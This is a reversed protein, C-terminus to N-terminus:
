ERVLVAETVPKRKEAELRLKNIITEYEAETPTYVSRPIDHLPRTPLTEPIDEQRVPITKRSRCRTKRLEDLNHKIRGCTYDLRKKVEGDQVVGSKYSLKRLESELRKIKKGMSKYDGPTQVVYYSGDKECYRVEVIM